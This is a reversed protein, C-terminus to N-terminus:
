GDGINGDGPKVDESSLGSALKQQWYGGSDQATAQESGQKVVGRMKERKSKKRGEADLRDTQIVQM